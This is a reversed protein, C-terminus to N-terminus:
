IPSNTPAYFAAEMDTLFHNPTSNIRHNPTRFDKTGVGLVICVQNEVCYMEITSTHKHQFTEFDQFRDAMCKGNIMYQLQIALIQTCTPGSGYFKLEVRGLGTTSLM